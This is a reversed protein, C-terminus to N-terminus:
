GTLIRKRRKVDQLPPFLQAGFWGGAITLVIIGLITFLSTQLMSKPNGIFVGVLKLSGAPGYLIM